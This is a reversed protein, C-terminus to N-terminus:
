KWYTRTSDISKNKLRNLYEEYTIQNNSLDFVKYDYKKAISVIDEVTDGYNYVFNNHGELFIMPKYNSLVHDANKLIKVEFGETDIKMVDPVVEYLQCFYDVTLMIISDNGQFSLSHLEGPKTWYSTLSNKDGMLAKHPYIKKDPNKCLNQLLQLMGEHSGDVAHSVRDQGSFFLSFVGFLAGIDILSKKDKTQEIFCTMEQNEETGEITWCNYVDKYLDYFSGVQFSRDKVQIKM